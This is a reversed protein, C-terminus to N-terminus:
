LPPPPSTGGLYSCGVEEWLPGVSPGVPTYFGFRHIEHSSELVEQVGEEQLVALIEVSAEQM